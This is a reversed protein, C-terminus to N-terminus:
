KGPEEQPTEPKPALAAVEAAIQEKQGADIIDEIACGLALAVRYLQYVNPSKRSGSCWDELTRRSLGTRRSLELRSIGAAACREDIPHAM